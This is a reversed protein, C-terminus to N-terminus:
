SSAVIKATVVIQPYTYRGPSESSTSSAKVFFITNTDDITEAITLQSGFTGTSTKSITWHNETDNDIEIQTNGDTEYGTTTRVALRITKSESTSADLTVSVPATMDGDTSVATGDTNGATPDNKYINIYPNAM